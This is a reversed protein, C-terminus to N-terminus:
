AGQLSINKTNFFRGLINDIGHFTNNYWKTELTDKNKWRFKLIGSEGEVADMIAKKETVSFLEYKILDDCFNSLIQLYQEQTEWLKPMWLEVAFYEETYGFANLAPIQVNCFNADNIFYKGETEKLFLLLNKIKAYEFKDETNEIFDKLCITYGFKSLLKNRDFAVYSNLLTKDSLYYSMLYENWFKSIFVNNVDTIKSLWALNLPSISYYYGNLKKGDTTFDYGFNSNYDFPSINLVNYYYPFIDFLKNINDIHHRDRLLFLTSYHYTITKGSIKNSGCDIECVETYALEKQNQYFKINECEQVLEDLCENLQEFNEFTLKVNNRDFVSLLKCKSLSDM